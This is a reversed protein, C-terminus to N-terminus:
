IIVQGGSAEDTHAPYVALLKGIALVHRMYFHIGMEWTFGMGGHMQIAGAIARQSRELAVLLPDRRAAPDHAACIVATRALEVDIHMNAIRHKVAQFQGIPRSFAYRAKAYTVTADLAAAAAGVASAVTMTELEHVCASPLSCAENAFGLILSPAFDDVNTDASPRLMEPPALSRVVSVGPYTAFPVCGNAALWTLPGGGDGATHPMWRRLIVTELLPVSVLYKGWLEAVALLDTLSAGGGGRSASVGFLQWSDTALRQWLDNRSAEGAAGGQRNDFGSRVLVQQLVDTASQGIDSTLLQM